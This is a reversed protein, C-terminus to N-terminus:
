GRRRDNLQEFFNSISQLKFVSTNNPPWNFLHIRVNLERARNHVYRPNPRKSFGLFTVGYATSFLCLRRYREKSIRRFWLPHTTGPRAFNPHFVKKRYKINVEHVNTCYNQSKKPKILPAALRIKQTRFNGHKKSFDLKKGM